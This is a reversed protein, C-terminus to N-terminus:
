KSNGKTAFAMAVSLGGVLLEMINPTLEKCSGVPAVGSLVGYMCLLFMTYGGLIQAWIISAILIFSWKVVDFARPDDM